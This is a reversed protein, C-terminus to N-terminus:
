FILIKFPVNATFVLMNYIVHMM